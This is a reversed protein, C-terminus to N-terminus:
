SLAVRLWREVMDPLAGVEDLATARGFVEGYVAAGGSAVESAVKKSGTSVLLPIVVLHGEQHRVRDFVDKSAQADARGLLGDSVVFVVHPAEPPLSGPRALAKALAESLRTGGSAQLAAVEARLAEHGGRGSELAPGASQRFPIVRLAVAGSLEAARSVVLVARCAHEFLSRGGGGPGLMSGSLDLLCTIFAPPSAGKPRREFVRECGSVARRYAYRGRSRHSARALRRQPVELVRALRRAAAELDELLGDARRAGESGPDVEPAQPAEGPAAPDEPAQLTESPTGRRSERFGESVDGIAILDEPVSAALDIGLLRLIERAIEAVEGSSVAVWAKEVLPKVPAFDAETIDTASRVAPCQDHLWRWFLCAQLTREPEPLLERPTGTALLVDGMATFCHALDSHRAAMLREIREDELANWLWGLVGEPKEGSYLIHGAEHAILGKLWLQTPHTLLRAVLRERATSPNEQLARPVLPFAASVFVERTKPNVWALARAEGSAGRDRDPDSLILRYRGTRAYYRLLTGAYRQWAPRRQWTGPLASSSALPASFM